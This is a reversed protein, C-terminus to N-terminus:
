PTPIGGQTAAWIAARQVLQNSTQVNLKKKISARHSEVTKRSICMAEATEVTSRGQGLHEFVEIERDSLQEIPSTPPRGDLYSELIRDRVSDSLAIGGNLVERVSMLIEASSSSKSIYGQAGARIVRAAYVKEPHASIVLIPLDPHLARVHKVLDLGSMGPLSLDALLLDLEMGSNLADMTEHADIAEGCVILDDASELIAKVGDRMIPHDDVIYVRHPM